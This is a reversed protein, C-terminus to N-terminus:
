TGHRLETITVHIHDLDGDPLKWVAKLRVPLKLGGFQGYATIPV